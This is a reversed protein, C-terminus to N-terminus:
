RRAATKQKRRAEPEAEDSSRGEDQRPTERRGPHAAAVVDTKIQGKSRRRRRRKTISLISGGSRWCLVIFPQRQDQAETQTHRRAVHRCRTGVHRASTHHRNVSPIIATIVSSSIIIPHFQFAIQPPPPSGSGARPAATVSCLPPALTVHLIM